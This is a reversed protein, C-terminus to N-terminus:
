CQGLRAWVVTRTTRCAGYMTYQHAWHLVPRECLALVVMCNAHKVCVTCNAHKVCVTCNAHKVCVTCNAHKVCVTCNAHKVCVTCNAHKVGGYM